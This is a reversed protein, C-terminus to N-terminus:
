AGGEGADEAPRWRAPVADAIGLRELHEARVRGGADLGRVVYYKRRAELFTERDLPELLARGKGFGAEQFFRSPLDDEAADFGALENCCRERHDIREGITQLSGADAPLGTAAAYAKAFEELSAACFVWQCVGLSQMAAIQDEALKVIRAKGEFSFRDTAVPKRLLEHALPYARLHDAGRTSVAYGLALGYAGRPDYPPIELDKVTMAAEPRGRSEAYSAAGLALGRVAGGGQGLADLTALLSEPRWIAGEIEAYAALTGATSVPDLGMAACRHNAELVTELDTINLLASFHSMAEYDPLPGRGDVMRKCLIACGSCGARDPHFRQAFAHANLDGAPPFRCARFNDTPMMARSDILDYLAATGHRGIGLEGQLVPSASVLRQIEVRAEELSGADAVQVEDTGHVAIYRLNKRAQVLGLGGRDIAFTGDLVLAAYRVGAYGAPGPGVVAAGDPLRPLLAAAVAATDLGAMADAAEFTVARDEIRLGVPEAARGTLVLADFGARKLMVGFRGGGSADAVGGTLPSRGAVTWHGSSPATTGTLPGTAYILPADADDPTYPWAQALYAGALGRGGIWRAYFAPDPEEVSWAGASLDVHLIRGTWGHM